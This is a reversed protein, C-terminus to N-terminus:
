KTQIRARLDAICLRRGKITGDDNAVEYSLTRYVRAEVDPYLAFEISCKGSRFRLIRQPDNDTEETPNGLVQKLQAEEIGVVGIDPMDQGDEPKPPHSQIAAAQPPKIKVPQTPAVVDGPRAGTPVSASRPAEGQDFSKGGQCAAVLTIVTLSIATRLPVDMM